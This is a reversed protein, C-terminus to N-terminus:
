GTYYYRESEKQEQDLRSGPKNVRPRGTKPDRRFTVGVERLFMNMGERMDLPGKARGEGGPVGGFVFLRDSLYDVSLVDHDVVFAAANKREITREIARAMRLRQEVDLYASPEDLLYLDAPKGLSAAIVTRQLEGGSLSQIQNDLLGELGLPKLVETKFSKDFGSLCDYLYGRVSGPFDIEPYQPKHVMELKRDIEGEDPTLEGSLMRVFTTKGTANPGVVGVLEGPYIEGKEVRLEFEEFRKTLNPFEFSPTKGKQFETPARTKFRISESRFRVNEERLYGDLYVNIGKRVGRPESIVGYANPTGYIVNVYDCMYDLAALDHEVVIVAKGEEALSRISRAANLRQYVDLHSAPEDFYYLDADKVSAAAIGLRQLEGGSLDSVRRDMVEELELDQSIERIKGREDTKDLLEGVDGEVKSPLYTISQPKYSVNADSFGSFYAQLESGKFFDKLEESTASESTGLNPRIVGALIRLATTKGIGNRGILGTVKGERPIPLGYLAFGNQGYRHVCQEELEEPLNIIHIAGFPCKHVCIGCGTCLEESIIPKDEEDLTVTEDGMRVGPCFSKCETACKRPQCKNRDLVAIRPM